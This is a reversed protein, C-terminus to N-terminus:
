IVSVLAIGFPHPLDTVLVRRSNGELDCSELKKERADIWFLLESKYDLALGNPWGIDTNVIVKRGSGDLYSREIRSMNEGLDSWFLFSFFASRTLINCFNNGFIHRHVLLGLCQM